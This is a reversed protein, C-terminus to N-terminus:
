GSLSYGSTSETSNGLFSIIACATHLWEHHPYHASNESFGSIKRDVNPRKDTKTRFRDAAADKLCIAAFQSHTIDPNNAFVAFTRDPSFLRVLRRSQRDPVPREPRLV